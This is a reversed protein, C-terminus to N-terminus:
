LSRAEAPRRGSEELEYGRQASRIRGIEGGAKKAIIGCRVLAVPPRNPGPPASRDIGVGIHFKVYPDSEAVELQADTPVPETIMKEIWTIRM